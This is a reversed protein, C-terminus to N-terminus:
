QCAIFVIVLDNTFTIINKFIWFGREWFSRLLCKLSLCNSYHFSPFSQLPLQPVRCPTSLRRWAETEEVRHQLRSVRGMENLQTLPQFLIAKSIVGPVVTLVQFGSQLHLEKRERVGRQRHKPDLYSHIFCSPNFHVSLRNPYALNYALSCYCDSFRLLQFGGLANRM